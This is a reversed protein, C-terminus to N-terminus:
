GPLKGSSILLMTKIFIVTPAIELACLYLFLLLGSYKHERIGIFFSRLVRYILFIIVIYFTIQKLLLASTYVLIISLPIAILSSYLFYSFMGALYFATTESTQFIYGLLRILFIKALVFLGMVPLIRGILWEFTIETRFEPNFAPLLTATILSVSSIYLLGILLALISKSPNWERMLQNLGNNSFGAKLLLLFRRANLQKTIVVIATLLLIGLAIWDSANEDSSRTKIHIDGIPLSSVFRETAIKKEAELLKWPLFSPSRSTEAQVITDAVRPVEPIFSWAVQQESQFTSDQTM